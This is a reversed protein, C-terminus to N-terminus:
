LFAAFFLALGLPILDVPLGSALHFTAGLECLVALIVLILRLLSPVYYVRAPPATASM